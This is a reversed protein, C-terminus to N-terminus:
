QVVGHIVSPSKKFYDYSFAGPYNAGSTNCPNTSDSSDSCSTTTIATPLSSTSGMTIGLSSATGTAPAFRLERDLWKVYKTSGDITIATGDAISFAPFWRTTSSCSVELNTYPDVCRGPIGNLDGFGAFQLNMSAGAYQGYTTEDAPVQYTAELPPTFIVVTGDTKKLFTATNWDQIGTEFRYYEDLDNSRWDCYNTGGGAGDCDMAGGSTFNTGSADVLAGSRIGWNFNTKALKTKNSSTINAMLTSSVETNTPDLLKYTSPNWTYSIPTSIGGWANITSTAFPTTVSSDSSPNLVFASIQSATPCELVCKLSTPVTDGPKVVTETLYRVGNPETGPSAATLTGPPISLSGLSQSWGWVGWSNNALLQAPTVTLTSIVSSYCGNAGCNQTGVVKFAQASFDWYAEYTTNASLGAGALGNNFQFKNNKIGDLTKRVRVIKMLRGGGKQVTYSTGNKAHTVAAGDAPQTRFWLGWYSAYGWEGAADKVSFGPSPLDFRSGDANYVGYRWVSKIAEAKSRKFCKEPVVGTSDSGSRCFYSSNYGFVYTADNSTGDYNAEIAGAGTSDNGTVYLRVDNTQTTGIGGKEAYQIGSATTSIRGRVLLSGAPLSAGNITTTSNLAMAYNFTLVGNPASASGAESQTMHMYVPIHTGDDTTMDVHGKVIQPATSSARTVTLSMPTYSTAGTSSTSTSNSSSSMSDSDCKDTDILAVYTGANVMADPRTNSIFCLVSTPTSMEQTAQDATYESQPDTIYAGSTPAANVSLGALALGMLILLKHIKM